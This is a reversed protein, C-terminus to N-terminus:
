AHTDANQAHTDANLAHTDANQAHTDANLAHTDANQAHKDANRPVPMEPHQSRFKNLLCLSLSHRFMFYPLGFVYVYICIHICISLQIFLSSFSLAFIFSKKKFVRLIIFFVYHSQKVYASCNCLSWLEPTLVTPDNTAVYHTLSYNM